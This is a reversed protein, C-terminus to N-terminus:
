PTAGSKLDPRSYPTHEGVLTLLDPLQDRPLLGTTYGCSCCATGYGTLRRETSRIGRANPPGPRAELQLLIHPNHDPKWPEETDPM